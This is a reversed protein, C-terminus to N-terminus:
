KKAVIFLSSGFPINIGKTIIKNEFRNMQLFAGNIFSPLFKLDSEVNKKNFLKEIYKKVFMVFFLLPLRYTATIVKFGIKDLNQVLMSKIYRRKTYVAIDHM